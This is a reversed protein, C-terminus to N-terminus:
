TFLTRMDQILKQVDQASRASITYNNVLQIAAADDRVEKDKIEQMQKEADPTNNHRGVNEVFTQGGPYHKVRQVWYWNDSYSVKYDVYVM